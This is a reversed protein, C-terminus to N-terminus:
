WPSGGLWQAAVGVALAVAFPIGRVATSDSPPSEYALRRQILTAVLIRRWRRLFDGLERRLALLVLGLAGAAILAWATAGLVAAPGIWAGLAMLTKVDGAGLGGLAYPGLLLCFGLAAGVLAEAPGSTAGLWPSVLVAVLLAPFTLLNPIRESRIDSAVALFLFATAGALVSTPTSSHLGVGALALALAFAVSWGLVASRRECNGPGLGAADMSSSVAMGGACHGPAAHPAGHFGLLGREGDSVSRGKMDM